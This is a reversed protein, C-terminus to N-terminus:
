CDDAIYDVVELDFGSLAHMKRPTGLVHMKGVKLDKLIQGGLGVTRLDSGTEVVVSDEGGLEKLQSQRIRKVMEDHDFYYCLLVLVGRGEEAIRKIASHITWSAEGRAECFADYLGHVLQVRVHVADDHDYDGFSLAYHTENSVVDQYAILTFDGYQTAMTSEAIRAITPEHKLRYRILDAITGIKIEKEKAFTILDPLRAMNGDEKLIECIVSAPEYGALRALDCGAETHGARALVGGPQSKLPFIHGPMVIDTPCAEPSVAAKVTQARDAASIGTTVGEAAEISITFNTGYSDNTDSVMLPLNLQECRGETLTLCILGRGHTAMYNIAESDVCQAPIILDGENERDEDDVMIVMKGNAFDDIIEEIPSIGTTQNKVTSM